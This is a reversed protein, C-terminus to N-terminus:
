NMLITYSYPQLEVTVPVSKTSGEILDTMNAGALSIPIRVTQTDGSTNVAVLLSHGPISRTFCVASSVSYDRLEGRRVEASNRFANNIKAYVETLEASFDLPAYNFFSLKGSLGKVDMSSYIMPTGNLMSALVYAAPVAEPSGFLKDVDNDAAVDHNFAYRLISKGDPVKSLAEEAEKVVESTKGGNFAASIAATCSWDYIMDFGDAYYVPSGTEALMILEPHSVRLDEITKSWFEQPVGEVYDCRFGDIGAQEVWFTMADAMAECTATNGFDLQAVDPWGEPSVINGDADKDYRDPHETIWPHDWSTHNAVWDLMVKIGKAHAQSVLEQLDAMTGYRPNVSKFDRICYPSGISNLEGTTYVPMIWLIDCGMDAIRPLQATLAKLCEHEGFFRPNAQYIVNTSVENGVVPEDPNAPMDIEYSTCGTVTLALTAAALSTIINKKIHPTM